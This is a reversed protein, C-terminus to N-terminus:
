QTLVTFKGDRITKLFVEKSADGSPLITTKGTVGIYDQLNKIGLKFQEKNNGSTSIIYLVINLADYGLSPGITPQKVHEDMYKKSFEESIPISTYIFGEAADKATTLLDVGESGYNGFFKISINLEKAQKLILGVTSPTGPIFLAETDSEKLKLLHTRFDKGSKEFSESFVIEGKNETFDKKFAEMYSIGTDDNVYLIGAKKIGISYAYDSILKTQDPALLSMRYIYEGSNSIKPSSAAPSFLVTRNEEAIPIMALMISSAIPGIVVVPKHLQYINQVATVGGQPKSFDDEIILNIKYKSTDIFKSREGYAMNIGDMLDKGHNSAAGTLPVVIGINIITKNDKQACGFFLIAVVSFLIIRKM